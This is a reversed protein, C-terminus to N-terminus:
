PVAPGTFAFHGADRLHTVLHAALSRPVLLDFETEPRRQLAHVIVDVQAAVTRACSGEPFAQERLDIPLERALSDDAGPGALRLWTHACDLDICRDPALERRLRVVAAASTTAALWRGPALPLLLSIGDGYAHGDRDGLGLASAAAGVDRDGTEDWALILLAGAVPLEHLAPHMNDASLTRDVNEIASRQEPM